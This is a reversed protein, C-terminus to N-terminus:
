FVLAGCTPRLSQANAAILNMQDLTSGGSVTLSGKPSAVAGGTQQANVQAQALDGATPPMAELAQLDATLAGGAGPDTSTADAQVKLAMTRLNEADTKAQAAVSIVPAIEADLATQGASALSSCSSMLATVGSSATSAATAVTQWAAEYQDARNIASQAYSSASSTAAPGGAGGAPNENTYQDIFSRGGAGLQSVGILGGSSGGLVSAFISQALSGLVEDIEDASVLKAVNSGLATALNDHIVSGPTNITGPTGDANTCSGGPGSAPVCVGSSLASGAPCSTTDAAGSSAVCVGDVMASGDACTAGGGGPSPGCWSVFGHGANYDAVQAGQAAAVLSGLQGNARQYLTFPNNQNQTTLSFWAAVGGQSWNGALFSQINPSSQSLTCQNEAFFGALSTQQLYNTHLSSTIASAFPSNSNKGFQALFSLATTDGTKQLTVLLNQVFQPQGTGNGKGNVFNVVSGTISQLSKQSLAWAIPDLVYEKVYLSNVGSASIISQAATITNKLMSTVGTFSTDSIIEADVAYAPRPVLVLSASLAALTLVVLSLNKM